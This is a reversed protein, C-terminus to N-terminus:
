HALTPLSRYHPDGSRKCLSKKIASDRKCCLLLAITAPVKCVRGDKSQDEVLQESSCHM